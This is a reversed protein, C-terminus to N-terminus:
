TLVCIGVQDNFGLLRKNSWECKYLSLVLVFIRGELCMM